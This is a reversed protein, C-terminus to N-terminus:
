TIRNNGKRNVVWYLGPIVVLSLLMSLCMGGIMSIAMPQLMESGEGMALALPLFGFITALTTMLIPRLRVRGAMLLAEAVNPNEHLYKETYDILLIGNNVVVGVIMIMGMFASIDLPIGTIWLLLFVGNVSLVTGLLIVLATRIYKFEFLLIAFVLLVGFVLILLLEGFARRQSEYQGGIQVSVGPPLPIQRLMVKVDKIIMGLSRGSIQSKVNVVQSLNEHDIDTKGPIKQVTAVEDLTLVRNIASLYIPLRRIKEVHDFDQKSYRVRVPIM